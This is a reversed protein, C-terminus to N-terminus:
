ITVFYLTSVHGLFPQTEVSENLHYRIILPNRFAGHGRGALNCKQVTTKSLYFDYILKRFFGCFVYFDEM